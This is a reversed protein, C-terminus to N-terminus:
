FTLNTIQTEIESPLWDFFTHTQSIQYTKYTDLSWINQSTKVGIPLNSLTKLTLLRENSVINLKDLASKISADMSKNGKTFAECPLLDLLKKTFVRGSGMGSKTLQHGDPYGEFLQYTKSKSDYFGFPEVASWYTNQNACQILEIITKPSFFDDSDIHILYDFDLSKSLSVVLNKKAGLNNEHEICLVNKHTEFTRLNLLDEQSGVFCIYPTFGQWKLSSLVYEVMYQAFIKTLEYREHIPVGFILSPKSTELSLSGKHPPLFMHSKQELNSIYLADTGLLTHLRVSYSKSAEDVYLASTAFAVIDSFTKLIEGSKSLEILVDGQENFLRVSSEKSCILHYIDEIAYLPYITAEFDIYFTLHFQTSLKAEFELLWFYLFSQKPAKKITM